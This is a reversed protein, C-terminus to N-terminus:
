IKDRTKNGRQQNKNSSTSLFSVKFSKSSVFGGKGALSIMYLKKLQVMTLSTMCSGIESLTTYASCVTIIFSGTEPKVNIPTFIIRLMTCM